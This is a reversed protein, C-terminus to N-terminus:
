PPKADSADFHLPGESATSRVALGRRQLEPGIAGRRAASIWVEAPRLADLLESARETPDGHHPWVLLDARAPATETQAWAELWADVGAERADGTLVVCAGWGRVRAALSRENPEASHRAGSVFELRLAGADSTLTLAGAGPEWTRTRAGTALHLADLDSPRVWDNVPWRQVLWPVASVHDKDWHSTAISLEATEWAALQPGLAGRELSNRDRTGADFVWVRQTPTRLVLATGHGVDLAALEMGRPALSWPLLAAGCTAFALRRGLDSWAASRRVSWLALGLLTALHLALPRPPLVYPSAPAGDFFELVALLAHYPAEFGQPPLPLYVAALGYVLLWAVLPGVAPTALLGVPSLEGLAAWCLPATALSAALSAGLATDFAAACRVRLADFLTTPRLRAAAPDGVVLLFATHLRRSTALGASLTGAAGRRLSGFWRALPASGVILGATAAYSLQLSLTFLARPAFLLEVCLTAALLSRADLRRWTEVRQRRRLAGVALALAVTLAARRVPSQAGALVSYLVIAGLTALACAWRARGPAASGLALALFTTLLAIHMGSVALVHRVGTRTFLEGVEPALRSEDGFLLARAFPGAEDGLRECRQMSWERVRELTTWSRWTPSPTLRRVEDSKVVWLEESDLTGPTRPPPAFGRAPRLPRDVPSVELEEGARAAGVPLVMRRAFGGAEVLRGFEGREGRSSPSWLGRLPAQAAARPVAHAAQVEPSTARELPADLEGVAPATGPDAPWRPASEGAAEDRASPEPAWLRSATLLALLALGLVSLTRTPRVRVSAANGGRAKGNTAWNCQLSLWRELAWAGALAWAAAHIWVHASAGCCRGVVAGVALAAALVLTPRRPWLGQSNSPDM